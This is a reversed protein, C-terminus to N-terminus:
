KLGLGLFRSVKFRKLVLELIVGFAVTIAIVLLFYAYGTIGLVDYSLSRGLKAGFAQYLYITYAFGGLYIFASNEFVKRFRFLLACASIGMSVGVLSNKTTSVMDFNTFWSIQHILLSLFFVIYYVKIMLDSLIIDSHRSMGIGMLFFPLLYIAGGISFIDRSAPIQPNYIFIVLSFFFLLLWRGIPEIWNRSDFFGIFCFILFVSQIFWYHDYPFIYIKWIDTIAEPNNIGPLMASLMFQLTSVFFLPVLLRRVKGRFFSLFASTAVPRYAYLYGSIMTFLPMRINDFTFSFYDLAYKNASLPADNKVHLAIVLVIALFRLAEISLDKERPM